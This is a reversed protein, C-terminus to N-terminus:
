IYIYSPKIKSALKWKKYNECRERALEGSKIPNEIYDEPYLGFGSKHKGITYWM